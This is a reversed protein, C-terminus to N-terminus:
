WVIKKGNQIYMQGPQPERVQRGLLDYYAGEPQVSVDEVGTAVSTNTLVFGRVHAPAPAAGGLELYAKGAKNTFAGVGDTTGYPWFLGCQENYIGLIYHVYGNDITEDELTGKLLNTSYTADTETEMLTYTANATGQLVVGTNAPITTLEEATLQDGEVGTFIMAKLGSPLEFAKDSYFTSYGYASITVDHTQRIAEYTLTKTAPNFIYTITYMGDYPIAVHADNGDGNPYACGDDWSRNAVLKYAHTGATLYKDTQVCKFTGDGQNVLENTAAGADWGNAFVTGVLHYSADFYGKTSTLSIDGTEPNFHITVGAEEALTFCINKSNDTYYGFSSADFDVNSHDWVTGGDSAWKGNTVRFQYEGAPLSAYSISQTAIDFRAADVRTWWGKKGCWDGKGDAAGNGTIFYVPTAQVRVQNNVISITVEAAASLTFLIDKNANTTCTYSHETDLHDSTLVNKNDWADAYDKVKFAYDGAPLSLYTFSLNEDLITSSNWNGWSTKGCWDGKDSSSGNGVICYQRDILVCIKDNVIRITVDASATLQFEIDGSNDLVMPSSHAVDVYSFGRWDGKYGIVKFKYNGAPLAVFSIENNIFINDEVQYGWYHGNCWTGHAGDDGNGSLYFTKYSFTGNSTVRVKGDVVQVTIDGGGTMTFSMDDGNGGYLPVNSEYDFEGLVNDWGGNLVKFGYGGPAVGTFTISNNEDLYNWGWITGGCWKGNTDDNGNGAIIYAASMNTTLMCALLLMGIKIKKKMINIIYTIVSLHALVM